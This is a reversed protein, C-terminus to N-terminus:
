YHDKPAKEQTSLCIKEDILGPMLSLDLHCAINESVM